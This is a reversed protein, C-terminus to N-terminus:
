PRILECDHWAISCLTFRSPNKSISIQETNGERDTGRKKM